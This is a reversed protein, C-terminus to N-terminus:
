NTGRNKSFKVVLYYVMALVGALAGFAPAIQLLFHM